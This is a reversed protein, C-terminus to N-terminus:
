RLARARYSFTLADDRPLGGCALTTDRHCDTRTGANVMTLVIRAVKRRSFPVSLVGDGRGDLRVTRRSLTGDRRHVTVQAAPSSLRSPGDVWIRLRRGHLTSSRHFAVNASSLHDLSVSRLSGTGPHRRSLSLQRVMPAQPYPADDGEVYWRRSVHSLASYDAFVRGFPTGHRALVWRTASLSDRPHAPDAAAEWIERVVQPAAQRPSGFYESVFRWWTWAGFPYYEEGYDLPVGPHALTSTGLYNWNDNASDFVEDEMWTATGDMLWPDERADYALEVLTFLQHAAAARLAVLPETGVQDAAYDDDLVCYGGATSQGPELGEAPCYGYFGLSAVDALYVDVKGDPGHSPQAEDGLPARYGARAFHRWAAELTRQTTEVWDPVGDGDADAPDVADQGRDTWHVCLHATCGVQSPGAYHLGGAQPDGEDTPRSLIQEATSASAVHPFATGAASALVTALILGLQRRLAPMTPAEERTGTVRGPGPSAAHRGTTPRCVSGM